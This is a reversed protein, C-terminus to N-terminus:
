VPEPPSSANLKHLEAIRAQFRAMLRAAEEEKGYPVLVRLTDYKNVGNGQTSFVHHKRRFHLIAPQSTMRVNQLALFPFHTGAEWIGKRSFTVKQPQAQNQRARHRLKAESYAYGRVLFVVGVITLGLVLIVVSAPTHLFIVGLAIDIFLLALNPLWYRLWVAQWDVKDFLAWEEPTYEWHVWARDDFWLDNDDDDFRQKKSSSNRPLDSSM